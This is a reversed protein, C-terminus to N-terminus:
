KTPPCHHKKDSVHTLKMQTFYFMFIINQRQPLTANAPFNGYGELCRKAPTLCESILENNNNKQKNQQLKLNPMKGQFVQSFQCVTAPCGFTNTLNFITQM